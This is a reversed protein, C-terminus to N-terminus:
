QDVVAGAGDVWRLLDAHRRDVQDSTNPRDFLVVHDLSVPAGVGAAALQRCRRGADGVGRDHGDPYGAAVGDM